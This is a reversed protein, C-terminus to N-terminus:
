NVEDFKKFKEKVDSVAESQYKRNEFLNKPMKYKNISKINDPYIM